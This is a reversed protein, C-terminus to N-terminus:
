SRSTRQVEKAAIWLADLSPADLSALDQTSRDEMIRFRAEFKETASKLAAEADVEHHRAYNVVSFLLDGIEEQVDAPTAATEVEALEETIKYCM